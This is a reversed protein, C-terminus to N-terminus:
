KKNKGQKQKRYEMFAKLTEMNCKGVKKQFRECDKLSDMDKKFVPEEGAVIRFVDFLLGQKKSLESKFRYYMLKGERRYEIFGARQLLFLNRSVLPQSMGLIGMIQCVALEKKELINLVRLRSEDSFIKFLDLAQNM